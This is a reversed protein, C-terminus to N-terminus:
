RYNPEKCLLAKKNIIEPIYVEKSWHEKDVPELAISIVEKKCGFTTGIVDTLKSVLMNQEEESMPIPFYKINIHPM